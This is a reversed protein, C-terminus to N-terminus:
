VGQGERQCEKSCRMEIEEISQKVALKAYFVQEVGLRHLLIQKVEDSHIKRLAWALWARVGADAESNLRHGLYRAMGPDDLLWQSIEGYNTQLAKADRICSSHTGVLTRASDSGFVEEVEARTVVEDSEACWVSLRVQEAGQIFSTFRRQIDARDTSQRNLAEVQANEGFLLSFESALDALECGSTPTACLGVARLREGITDFGSTETMHLDTVISAQVVLGGLSHGFLAIHEYYRFLGTLHTALTLAIESVSPEHGQIMTVLRESYGPMVLRAILRFPFLLTRRFLSLTGGSRYGWFAFDMGVLDTDELLRKRLDGWYTSANGGLGHVFVALYRNGEVRSVELGGALYTTPHRDYTPEIM